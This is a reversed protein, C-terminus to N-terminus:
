HMLLLNFTACLRSDHLMMVTPNHQVVEYKDLMINEEDYIHVCVALLKTQPQDHPGFVIHSKLIVASQAFGSEM